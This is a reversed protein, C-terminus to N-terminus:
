GRERERVGRKKERGGEREGDRETETLKRRARASGVEFGSEERRAATGNTRPV